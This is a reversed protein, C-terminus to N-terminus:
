EDYDALDFFPRSPPSGTPAPPPSPSPTSVAAVAIRSVGPPAGTSSRRSESTAPPPTGKPAPRLRPQQAAVDDVVDPNLTDLQDLLQQLQEVAEVVIERARRTTDPPAYQRVWQRIRRATTGHRRAFSEQDEDGRARAALWHRALQRKQDVTFTHRPM